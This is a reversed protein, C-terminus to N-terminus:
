TSADEPQSLVGRIKTLDHLMLILYGLTQM